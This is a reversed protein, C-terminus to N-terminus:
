YLANQTVEKPQLEIYNQTYIRTQVPKVGFAQGRIAVYMDPDCKQLSEILEKVTTPYDTM